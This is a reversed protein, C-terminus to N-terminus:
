LSPTLNLNYILGHSLKHDKMKLTAIMRLGDVKADPDTENPKSDWKIMQGNPAYVLELKDLNLCAVTGAQAYRDVILMSEGYAALDGRFTTVYTSGAAVAERFEVTKIQNALATNFTAVKRAQTEDMFLAMRNSAVDDAFVDKQINNIMLATLQADSANTKNTGAQMLWTYIGRSTPRVGASEDRREGFLVAYELEARMQEMLEKLNEDYIENGDEFEGASALAEASMPLDRRFKQYNNYETTKQEIGVQDPMSFEPAPNHLIQIIAGDAVSTTAGVGNINRTVNLVHGSISVVQMTELYNAFKIIDGAQFLAGNTTTFSTDAALVVGSNNLIDSKNTKVFEAWYLRKNQGFKDRKTQKIYPLIGKGRQMVAQFMLDYLNKRDTLDYSVTPPTTSM